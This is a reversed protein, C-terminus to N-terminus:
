VPEFTGAVKPMWCVEVEKLGTTRRASLLVLDLWCGRIMYVVDRLTSFLVVYLMEYM